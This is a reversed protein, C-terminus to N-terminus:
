GHLLRWWRRHHTDISIVTSMGTRLPPDDAQRDIKIRVPIRQVIKVWNASSNQAPLISFTSDSAQNVAEVTGHWTRGPYTDISFEVPDGERVYALDTEKMDASIWLDASSVLGVASTTTFSSVSSVILAGPQLADVESEKADFPARVVTHDRQREAEALTAKAKKYGPYQELPLDPNGKLKALESAAEQELATLSGQASQLSERANDLKETSVAGNKALTQYRRYTIEALHEASKEALISGLNSRYSAKLSALDLATQEFAARDNDVAIQFPQPDLRFLVQGKRVFAGQHVEVSQVVGSVDTTVMLKAARVYANDTGVFRGGMLWFTASGVVVAAVGGIMAIRHLRSGDWKLREFM